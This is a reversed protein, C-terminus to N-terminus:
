PGNDEKREESVVTVSEQVTEKKIVEVRVPVVTQLKEWADENWQIRVPVLEEFLKQAFEVERKSIREIDQQLRKVNMTRANELINRREEVRRQFRDWAQNCTPKSSAFVTVPM